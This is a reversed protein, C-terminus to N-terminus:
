DDLIEVVEKEETIVEAVFENRVDDWAKTECTEWMLYTGEAFGRVEAHLVGGVGDFEYAGGEDSQSRALQAGGGGHSAVFKLQVKSLGCVQAATM